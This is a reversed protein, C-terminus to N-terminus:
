HQEQTTSSDHSDFVSKDAQSQSNQDGFEDCQSCESKNDQELSGTNSITHNKLFTDSTGYCAGYKFQHAFRIAQSFAFHVGNKKYDVSTTNTVYLAEFKLEEKISKLKALAEQSRTENEDYKTLVLVVPKQARRQASQFALRWADLDESRIEEDTGVAIMMIDSDIYLKRRFEITREDNIDGDTDIITM